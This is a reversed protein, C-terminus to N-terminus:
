DVLDGFSEERLLIGPRQHAPHLPRLVTRKVRHPRRHLLGDGDNLRVGPDLVHHSKRPSLAGGIAAEGKDRELREILALHARRFDQGAQAGFQRAHGARGGVKLGNLVDADAAPLGVGLVLVGQLGFGDFVQLLVARQEERFQTVCRAEHVHIGILLIIAKLSEKSVVARGRRPEAYSRLREVARQVM